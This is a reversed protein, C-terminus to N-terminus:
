SDAGPMHFDWQLGGIIYFGPQEYGLGEEVEADLLNNIRTFASLGNWIVYNASADVRFYEEMEVDGNWRLRPGAYYGHLALFLKDKLNYQVGVNFMNRAIQVTRSTQGDNDTNSDTYTYNGLLTFDGYFNWAFAFEVGTSIQKDRNVYTGVNEGNKRLYTYAIVDDLETKWTAIEFNLKGDLLLQRVGAEVTWGKEPKLDQNGYKPHYLNYVTPARFSTGYNTFLTTGVGHFTYAAGVKYTTQGGFDKHDGYRVGANLVVAEDFMVVQDNFYASKSDLYDGYAGYKGWSKGDQKIYELGVLATNVGLSFPQDYIFNYDAQYNEDQYYSTKGDGEDWIPVTEGKSYYNVYDTTFNDVPAAIYGLLGNYPNCSESEQKYWGLMLKQRFKDNINHKLNLTTLNYEEKNWREPDPMQYAWWQSRSTCFDYSENLEAYNWKSKIYVYSFEADFIDEYNYGLKIQPSFNNYDEYEHVGNSDTYAANISYRFNDATGRVGAYGKQWEYTGYEFGVNGNFGEEAGKTIFNMVGVTSDSGYLVSQPGRLIEVGGLVYPDLKSIFNGTGASTSENIKMGDVLVVFHGDAFGRMKTYVYQGPGGARKFQVGPTYRLVDTVDTYHGLSIEQEPVITITETVESIEKDMKTAQVTVEGMKFGETLALEDQNRPKQTTTKAAGQDTSAEDALAASGAALLSFVIFVAM